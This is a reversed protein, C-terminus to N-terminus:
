KTPRRAPVDGSGTSPNSGSYDGGGDEPGEIAGRGNDETRSAGLEIVTSEGGSFNIQLTFTNGTIAAPSEPTDLGAINALTKLLNVRPSLPLTPDIVDGCVQEIVHELLAATKTRTRARVNATELWRRKEELLQAQFEPSDSVSAWEDAAMGVSSLIERRERIDKAIERALYSLREDM